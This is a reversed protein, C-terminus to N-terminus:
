EPSVDRGHFKSIIGQSEMSDLEQKFKDKMAIPVRQPPKQDPTGNPRMMIQVPKCKFRGIGTFLESYKPYNVISQKTLTSMTFEWPTSNVTDAGTHVTSNANSHISDVSNTLNSQWENFIPCHFSTLGLALADSVGIIPKLRDPVIDCVSLAAAQSAPLCHTRSVAHYWQTLTSAMWNYPM